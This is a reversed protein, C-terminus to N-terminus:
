RRCVLVSALGEWFFDLAAAGQQHAAAASEALPILRGSPPQSSNMLNRQVQEQLYEQAEQLAAIQREGAAIQEVLIEVLKKVSEPIKAWDGEPIEALFKSSSGEM